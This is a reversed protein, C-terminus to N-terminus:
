QNEAKWQDFQEQKEKVIDRIGAAEMEENLIPITTEPDLTGCLLAPVYKEYVYLCGTIQNIVPAADFKFGFSVPIQATQEFRDSEGWDPELGQISYSLRGNPWAWEQRSYGNNTADKGEPYTIIGQEKDVFIYNEGEIGNIVLNAVVPDSYMLDYFAVAREPDGSAAPVFWALTNGTYTPVGYKWSVMEVGCNQTAELKWGPAMQQFYGFANGASVLTMASDTNFSADKMVLGEQCWQYMRECSERFLDTEFFSVIQGNEDFPDELVALNFTDGCDDQGLYVISSGYMDGGNSVVPDMDPYAEKVKVLADHLDEMSQFNEYDIDLAECIDKRMGFGITHGKEGNVPLGYIEGRYIQTVWDRENLQASLNPAFTELLTGVPQIQGANVYELPDSMPVFLDLKEGSALKLNLQTMYSSFSVRTLEVNCNLREETIESVAASVEKLAGPDADGFAMVKLTYHEKSHFYRSLDDISSNEEARSFSSGEGTEANQDVQLEALVSAQKISCGAACVLMFAAALGSLMCKKIKM